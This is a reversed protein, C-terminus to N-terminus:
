VKAGHLVRVKVVVIPRRGSTVDVTKSVAVIHTWLTSIGGSMVRVVGWFWRLRVWRCMGLGYVRCERGLRGVVLGLLM